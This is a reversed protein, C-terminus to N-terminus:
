LWWGVLATINDVTMMEAAVKSDLGGDVGDALCAVVPWVEGVLDLRDTGLAEGALAVVDGLMSVM